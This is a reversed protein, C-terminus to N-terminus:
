GNTIHYDPNVYLSNYGFKNRGNVSKHRRFTAGCKNFARQTEQRLQETTYHIMGNVVKATIPSKNYPNTGRIVESKGSSKIMAPGPAEVVVKPVNM